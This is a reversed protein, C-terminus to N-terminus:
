FLSEPFPIGLESLYDRYRVAHGRTTCRLPFELFLSGYRAEEWDIFYVETNRRVLVNGPNLDNHILTHM